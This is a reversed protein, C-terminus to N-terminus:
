LYRDSTARRGTKTSMNDQLLCYYTIVLQSSTKYLEARYYRGLWFNLGILKGREQLMECTSQCHSLWLFILCTSPSRTVRWSRRVIPSLPLAQHVISNRCTCSSLIGDGLALYTHHKLWLVGYLDQKKTQRDLEMSVMFKPLNCGRTKSVVAVIKPLPSFKAAFCSANSTTTDKTAACRIARGRKAGGCFKENAVQERREQETQRPHLQVERQELIRYFFWVEERSGNQEYNTPVRAHRSSM